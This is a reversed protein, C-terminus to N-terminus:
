EAGEEAPVGFQPAPYNAKITKPNGKFFVLINQHQKGLKRSDTFQKGVRMPLSGAATVLVAENYLIAGAAQFADVTLGPLNMYFGRDDRVDGVAFCAFRNPKLAAVARDIIARYALGFAATTMNSLDRPDDSYRELNFYPPCSFIFDSSQEPWFETLGASDGIVWSPKIKTVDKFIDDAQKRNAAVQDARLDIGEYKYGLLGAVVGRVSGGAFPDIISGKDPCFWRYALECVVPDFISVNNMEKMNGETSFTTADRGLEGQIGFDLWAKKRQQWVGQRADLVSFPPIGFRQALTAAKARAKPDYRFGAVDKDDFGLLTLDVGQLKLDDLATLLVPTDWDSLEATRNDALAYAKAKKKDTFTVAALQEWGLRNAAAVTGSGAVMDGTVMCVVPKQQGFEQLSHCIADISRKGHRRANSLDVKFFALPKVLGLLQPNISAKM